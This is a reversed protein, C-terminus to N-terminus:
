RIAIATFNLLISISNNNDNTVKSFALKMIVFVKM